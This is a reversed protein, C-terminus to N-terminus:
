ATVEESIELWGRQGWVRVDRRTIGRAALQDVTMGVRITNFKRHAESSPACPNPMARKVVRPRNDRAVPKPPWPPVAPPCTTIPRGMLREVEARHQPSHRGLRLLALIVDCRLVPADGGRWEAELYARVDRRLQRKVIDLPDM